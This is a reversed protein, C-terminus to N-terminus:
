GILQTIAADLASYDQFLCMPDHRNLILAPGNQASLSVTLSAQLAALRAQLETPSLDVVRLAEVRDAVVGDYHPHPGRHLSMGSQAALEETAPLWLLNAAADILGPGRGGHRRLLDAFQPRRRLPQPILHHQQWGRRQGPGTTAALALLAAADPLMARM